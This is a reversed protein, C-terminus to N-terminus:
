KKFFNLSEFEKLTYHIDDDTVMFNNELILKHHNMHKNKYNNFNINCLVGTIIGISINFIEDPFYANHTCDHMILFTRSQILSLLPLAFFSWYNLYYQLFYTLTFIAIFVISHLSLDLLSKYYIPKYKQQIEIINMTM